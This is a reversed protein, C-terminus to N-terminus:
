LAVDALHQVTALVAVLGLSAEAAEAGHEDGTPAASVCTEQGGVGHPTRIGTLGDDPSYCAGLHGLSAALGGQAINRGPLAGLDLVGQTTPCYAGQTSPCAAGQSSPCAAGQSTPRAMRLIATSDVGLTIPSAPGLTVPSGLGQTVSSM